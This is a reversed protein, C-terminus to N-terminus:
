LCKPILEFIWEGHYKFKTIEFCFWLIVLSEHLLTKMYRILKKYINKTSIYSLGDSNKVIKLLKNKQPEIKEETISEKFFTTTFPLLTCFRSLSIVLDDMCCTHLCSSSSDAWDVVKAYIWQNILAMDITRQMCSPFPNLIGIKQKRVLHIVGNLNVNYLVFVFVLLNFKNVFYWKLFLKACIILM